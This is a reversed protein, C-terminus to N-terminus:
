RATDYTIQLYIGLFQVLCRMYIDGVPDLYKVIRVRKKTTNAIDIAWIGGSTNVIEYDVMLGTDDSFTASAASAHYVNMVYLCWPFIPEVLIDINGSTVNTAATRAIGLIIEPDAGCETVAGSSLYVLDNKVFSQSDAETYSLHPMTTGALPAFMKIPRLVRTTAM